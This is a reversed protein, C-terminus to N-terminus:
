GGIVRLAGLVVAGGFALGGVGGLILGALVFYLRWFGDDSDQHFLATVVLHALPLILLVKGWDPAANVAIVYLTGAAGIAALGAGFALLEGMAM